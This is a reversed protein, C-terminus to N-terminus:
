DIRAQDISDRLWDWYTRFIEQHWDYIEEARYRAGELTLLPKGEQDRNAEFVDLALSKVGKGYGLGLQIAKFTKREVPHSQKTGNLPVAGAMKALTLYVDGELNNYAALLNEDGSLGAAITEKEPPIPKICRICAIPYLM